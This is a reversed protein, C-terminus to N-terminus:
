PVRFVQVRGEKIGHPYVAFWELSFHRFIDLLIQIAIRSYM